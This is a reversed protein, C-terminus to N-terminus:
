DYLNLIMNATPVCLKHSPLIKLTHTHTHTDKQRNVRLDGHSWQEFPRTMPSDCTLNLVGGRPSSELVSGGVRM